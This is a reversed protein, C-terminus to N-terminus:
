IRGQLIFLSRIRQYYVVESSEKLNRASKDSLKDFQITLGYASLFLFLSVCIKGIQSSEYVFFGYEPYKYFLHHWLMFCIAIGKILSTDNLSLSYDIAIKTKM